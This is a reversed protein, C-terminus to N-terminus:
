PPWGGAGPHAPRVAREAPAEAEGGAGALRLVVLEQARAHEAAQDVVALVGREDGLGQAPGVGPEITLRAERRLEQVGAQVHGRVVAVRAQVVAVEGLVGGLALTLAVKDPTIGQRLQQVIPAVM